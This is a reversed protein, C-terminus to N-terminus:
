KVVVGVVTEKKLLHAKVKIFDTISVKGDGGDTSGAVDAAKESAGTLLEKKLLHAKVAIMDTISIKGDGNTDGTVIVVYTKVAETGNMVSVKMGTGLLVDNAVVETGKFVKVSQSEALLELFAGVTTGVTIKSIYGTEDNIDVDKSTINAPIIEFEKYIDDGEYNGIFSICLTVTGVEIGDSESDEAINVVYDVDKVLIKNFDDEHWISFAPIIQEGTYPMNTQISGISLENSSKKSIEFTSTIIGTYNGVLIVTFEVVGANTHDVGEAFDIEYLLSGDESTLGLSECQIIVEPWIEDGTYVIDEVAEIELDETSIEIPVIEFYVEKTGFAEYEGIFIVKITATGVDQNDVYKVNYDIDLTLDIGDAQVVIEPTIDQGTYTQDEIDDTISIVADSLYGKVSTRGGTENKTSYTTVTGYECSVECYYYKTETSSVTADYTSNTAGEIAIADGDASDSVYWQYRYDFNPMENTIVAELTTTTVGDALKVDEVIELIPAVFEGGVLFPTEQFGTMAGEGLVYLWSVQNYPLHEFWVEVGTEWLLSNNEGLCMGSGDGTENPAMLAFWLEEQADTKVKVMLNMFTDEKLIYWKIDAVLTEAVVYGEDNVTLYETSFADYITKVKFTIASYEPYATTDLVYSSVSADDIIIPEIEGTYDEVEYIIEYGTALDTLPTWSLIMKGYFRDDVSFGPMNPIAVTAYHWESYESSDEGYIAKVRFYYKKGLEGTFTFSNEDVQVITPNDLDASLCYLVEYGTAYDIEDWSLVVETYDNINYDVNEPVKTTDNKVDSTFAKICLNHCRESSDGVMDTFYPNDTTGYGFYNEGAQSSSYVTSYSYVLTEGEYEGMMSWDNLGMIIFETDDFRIIITIEDGPAVEVPTDLNVTYYGEYSTSGTLTALLEGDYFQKEETTRLVSITYNADTSCLAFSIAELLQDTEGEIDFVTAFLYGQGYGAFPTAGDHQYINDLEDKPTVEYVVADSSMIGFDEYSIWIYGDYNTGTGWSNKVLWAGNNNPKSGNPMTFLDKSITDDWGVLTVAHNTASYEYNYNYIGDDSTYADDSFYSTTLAGNEMIAAKVQNADAMNIFKQGTLVYDVNEEKPVYETITGSSLSDAYYTDTGENYIGIGQTLLRFAYEDNGGSAFLTAMDEAKAFTYDGTQDILINDKYTLYAIAYESFDIATKDTEYGKRLAYSEMSACAAFAWCTGWSGQNKVSTVYGLEASNYREPVDISQNLGIGGSINNTIEVRGAVHGIDIYGTAGHIKEPTTSADVVSEVNKEQLDAAMATICGADVSMFTLAFVMFGALIRKLLGKRM